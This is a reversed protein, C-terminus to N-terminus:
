SEPESYKQLNLHELWSDLAETDEGEVLPIFCVIPCKFTQGLERTVLADMHSPPCGIEALVARLKNGAAAGKMIAESTPIIRGSFQGSMIEDVILTVELEKGHRVYNASMYRTGEATIYQVVAAEGAGPVGAEFLERPTKAGLRTLFGEATGQDRPEVYSYTDTIFVVAEARYGGLLVPVMATVKAIEIDFCAAIAQGEREVIFRPNFHQGDRAYDQLDEITKDLYDRPGTMTSEM